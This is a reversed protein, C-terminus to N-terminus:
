AAIADTDNLQKELSGRTEHDSLSWEASLQFAMRVLVQLQQLILEHAM